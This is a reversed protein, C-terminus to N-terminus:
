ACYMEALPLQTSSVPLPCLMHLVSCTYRHACLLLQKLASVQPTWLPHPRFHHWWDMKAHYPALYVPVLRPNMRVHCLVLCVELCHSLRSMVHVHVCVLQHQLPLQMSRQRWGRQLVAATITYCPLLGWGRGVEEEGVEEEGYINNSVSSNAIIGIDEGDWQRQWALTSCLLALSKGSGTPSELLANEGRSLAQIIQLLHYARSLDTMAHSTANSARLGQWTGQGDHRAPIPIAQVPIECTSRWHAGGRAQQQGADEEEREGEKVPRRQVTKVM